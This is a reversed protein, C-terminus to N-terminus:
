LFCQQKKKMKISPQLVDSIKDPFSVLLTWKIYNHYTSLYMMVAYEEM